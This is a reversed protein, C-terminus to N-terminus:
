AVVVSADIDPHNLDDDTVSVCAGTYDPDCGASAASAPMVRLERIQPDEPLTAVSGEPASM